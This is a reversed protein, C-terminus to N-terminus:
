RNYSDAAKYLMGNADCVIYYLTGTGSVLGSLTLNTASAMSLDAGLVVDLDAEIEIASTTGAVLGVGINLQDDTTDSLVHFTNTHGKIVIGTDEDGTDGFTGTPSTGVFAMDGSATLNGNKSGSLIPNTGVARDRGLIIFDDEGLGGTDDKATYYNQTSGAWQIGADEDAGDGAHLFPTVGGVTLDNTTLVNGNVDMTLRLTTANLIHLDDDAAVSRFTWDDAADDDNDSSIVIESNSANSGSAVKFVTAGSSTLLVTGDTDNSIQEDNVLVIDGNLEAATATVSGTIKGTVTIAGCDFTGSTSLNENSFDIEGSAATILGDCGSWNLVPMNATATIVQIFDDGDGGGLFDITGNAASTEPILEISGASSTINVDSGDFGITLTDSNDSLIVSNNTGGDIKQGNALTLDEAGLEIGAANFVGSGNVINVNSNANLTVNTGDNAWNGDSGAAGTLALTIDDDIAEFYTQVFEEDRLEGPIQPSEFIDNFDGAYLLLPVSVVAILTLIFIRRKNM